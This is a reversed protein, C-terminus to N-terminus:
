RGAAPPAQLQELAENFRRQWAGAAIPGPATDLLRLHETLVDGVAHLADHRTMGQQQLRALAHVVPAERRAVRDELAVHMPAHSKYRGSALRKSAHFTVALRLKEAPKLALWAAPELPRDADYLTTADPGASTAM